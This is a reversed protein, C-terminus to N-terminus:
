CVVNWEDLRALRRGVDDDDRRSSRSEVDVVVVGCCGGLEGGAANVREVRVRRARIDLIGM